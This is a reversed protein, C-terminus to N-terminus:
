PLEEKSDKYRPCERWHLAYGRPGCNVSEDNKCGKLVVCGLKDKVLPCKEGALDVKEEYGWPWRYVIEKPLTM